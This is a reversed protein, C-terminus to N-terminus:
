SRSGRPYADWYADLADHGERWMRKGTDTPRFWYRRLSAEDTRPAPVPVLELSAGIERVEVLGDSLLLRAGDIVLGEDVLALGYPAVEGHDRMSEISEWDDALADLVMLTVPPM